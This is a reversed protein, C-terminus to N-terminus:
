LWQLRMGGGGGGGMCVGVCVHYTSLSHAGCVLDIATDCDLGLSCKVCLLTGCLRCHHKRLGGIGGFKSGCTICLPVLDDPAWM